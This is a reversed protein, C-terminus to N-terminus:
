FENGKLNPMDFGETQVPTQLIGWCNICKGKVMFKKHDAGARTLISFIEREKFEKFRNSDLFKMFDSSRFYIRGQEKDLWPKGLLLEDQNRAQVKGTTFNDLHIWLQGEPGADPALEHIVATELIENMTAAWRGEDVPLIVKHFKKLYTRVFKAQSTIMDVSVDMKVGNINFVWYPEDSSLESPQYCEIPLQVEDLICPRNEKSNRATKYPSATSGVGYERKSCILKNCVSCIPQEQCRYIYKKRDLSRIIQQVEKSDGPGMYRENYDYVYKQWNDPHKMRAYVGMNFLANNMSGSPFGTTVLSELCPPADSFESNSFTLGELMELSIQQEKAYEVFEGPTLSDKNRIAYRNTHTSQFYPMNIWNGVDDKNRIVDQKPFVEAKPYGLSISLERLKARLLDAPVAESLFMYVHAGGSKTRCVIVPIDQEECADAVVTPDFDGYSDIDIAGFFCTSDDRIPIIGLGKKGTLHMKWLEETVPDKKTLAKGVSKLGKQKEITYEGHARDLGAFLNM